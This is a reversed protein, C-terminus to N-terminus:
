DTGKVSYDLIERSAASYLVTIPLGSGAGPEGAAHPVCRLSFLAPTYAPTFCRSQGPISRASEM